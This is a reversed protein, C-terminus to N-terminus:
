GFKPEFCKRFITRHHSIKSLLPSISERVIPSNWLEVPLFLLARESLSLNLTPLREPQVLAACDFRQIRRLAPMEHLTQRLKKQMGMRTFILPEFQDIEMKISELAFFGRSFDHNYSIELERLGRNPWAHNLITEICIQPLSLELSCLWNNKALARGFKKASKVLRSHTQVGVIREDFECSLILRSLSPFPVPSEILLTALDFFNFMPSKRDSESKWRFQLCLTLNQALNAFPWETLFNSFDQTPFFAVDLSDIKGFQAADLRQRWQKLFSAFLTLNAQLNVASLQVKTLNPARLLIQEKSNPNDFTLNQVDLHLGLERLRFYSDQVPFNSVDDGYLGFLDKLNTSDSVKEQKVFSSSTPPLIVSYNSVNFIGLTFPLDPPSISMHAGNGVVLLELNPLTEPLVHWRMKDLDHLDSLQLDILNPRPRECIINLLKQMKAAYKEFPVRPGSWWGHTILRARRIQPLDLISRALKLNNAANGPPYKVSVCLAKSCGGFKLAEHLFEVETESAGHFELSLVPCIPSALITRCVLKILDRSDKFDLTLKLPRARLLAKPITDFELWTLLEKENETTHTDPNQESVLRFLDGLKNAELFALSRERWSMMATSLM